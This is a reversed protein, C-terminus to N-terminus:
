RPLEQLKHVALGDAGHAKDREMWTVIEDPAVGYRKAATEITLDGRRILTVLAAKRGITWRGSQQVEDVRGTLYRAYADAM